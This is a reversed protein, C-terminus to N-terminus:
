KLNINLKIIYERLPNPYNQYTQYDINGVNKISFSINSNLKNIYYNVTTNLLFYHPLQNINDSSTFVSGVYSQNVRFRINKYTLVSTINGKHKPTYILQKGVSADLHNIGQKNVCVNYQYLLEQYFKIYKYKTNVVSKLEIGESLVQKINEPTWNGNDQQKWMIWDNVDLSYFTIHNSFNSFNLDLGIERNIGSEPNLFPNGNSGSGIWFRDNFTPARFNRNIKGRFKLKHIKYEASFSPIIPVDIESMYEQRISFESSFLTSRYSLATYIPISSETKYTNSYSSSTLNDERKLITLDTHINKLKYGINIESIYTEIESISHINKPNDIYYLNDYLLAQNAKVELNKYRYDYSFLFKRTDDIQEATTNVVTVNGPIERWFDSQWFKIEFQSHESILFSLNTNINIGKILSHNNFRTQNNYIYKFNNTDFIQSLNIEFYTKKNSKNLTISKTSLGFSGHEISIGLNSSDIYSPNTNLHISGGISGSGFITSNGGYNISINNFNTPIIRLDTVGLAPSNIPIGDWLFLTHSASTGRFTSTSLAGYSKVYVTSNNQLIDSLNESFSCNFVHPNIVDIRSGISHKKVKTEYIEVPPLLISDEISQSILVIPTALLICIIYINLKM